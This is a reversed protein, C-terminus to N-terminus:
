WENLDVQECGATIADRLFDLEDVPIFGAFQLLQKGPTGRLPSAQLSQVFELVMQQLDSPLMEMHEVVKSIVSNTM